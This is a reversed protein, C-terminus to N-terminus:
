RVVEAASAFMRITFHVGMQLIWGLCVLMVIGVGLLRPVFSLTQEQVSTVTQLVGIILGIVLSVILAPMSILMATMLFDRALELVFGITMALEM